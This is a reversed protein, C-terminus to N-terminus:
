STKSGKNTQKQWDYYDQVRQAWLPHDQIGLAEVM